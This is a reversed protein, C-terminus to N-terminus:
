RRGCRRLHIPVFCGEPFYKAHHNAESTVTIQRDAPQVEATHYRVRCTAYGARKIALCRGSLEVMPRKM